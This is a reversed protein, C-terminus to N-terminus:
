RGSTTSNLSQELQLSFRGLSERDPDLTAVFSRDDHKLNFWTLSTGPHTIIPAKALFSAWASFTSGGSGIILKSQSLLLLDAISSRSATWVVDPERLLEQIGSHEGDTVVVAPVTWSAISRVCRLVKVFWSIPTRLGGRLLFEGENAPTNFDSRRVHIGIYHNGISPPNPRHEPRTIEFLSERVVDNHGNLRTFYAEHGEFILIGPASTDIGDVAFSAEKPEALRTRDTILKAIREVGTIEDSASKFCRFYWRPDRQMRLIPGITVQAWFPSVM